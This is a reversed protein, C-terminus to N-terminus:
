LEKVYYVVRDKEDVNKFKFGYAKLVKESAVFDNADISVSGLLFKYGKKRALRAVKDAYTSAKGEKRKEQVVFIDVIYCYTDDIFKYTAFGYDDEIIEANEREKIYQGYLSTM